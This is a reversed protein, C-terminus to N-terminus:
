IVSRVPLKKVRTFFIKTKDHRRKAELDVTGGHGQITRGFGGEREDDAFEIALVGVRKEGRRLRRQLAVVRLDDAHRAREFNRQLHLAQGARSMVVRDDRQAHDPLALRQMRLFNQAGDGIREHANRELGIHGHDVFHEGDAVLGFRARQM